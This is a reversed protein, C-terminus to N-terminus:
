LADVEVVGGLCIAIAAALLEKGSQHSAVAALADVVRGLNRGLVALPWATASHRDAVDKGAGVDSLVDVDAARIQADVRDVEELQM